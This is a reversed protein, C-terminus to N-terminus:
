KVIEGTWSNIGGFDYVQTYGLESLIKAATNSRNGSRCYILIKKNKDELKTKALKELDDVPILISDKIHGGDYEEQTRVDLIIIDSENEIIKDAESSSIKTLVPKADKNASSEEVESTEVQSVKTGEKSGCGILALSIVGIMIYTIYTKIGKKM